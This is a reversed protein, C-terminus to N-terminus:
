WADDHTNLWAVGRTMCLTWERYGSCWGGGQVRRAFLVNREIEALETLIQAASSPDCTM